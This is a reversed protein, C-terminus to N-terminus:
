VIRDSSNSAWWLFVFLLSTWTFSCWLSCSSSLNMFQPFKWPLYTAMVFEDRSLCFIYLETGCDTLFLIRILKLM